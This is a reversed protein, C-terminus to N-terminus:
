RFPVTLGLLPIPYLDVGFSFSNDVVIMMAFDWSIKRGILRGSLSILSGQLPDAIWNETVLAFSRTLRYQGGIIYIPGPQFDGDEHAFALGASFYRDPSGYTLATYYCSFDITSPGYESLHTVVAGLGVQFKNEVVPITFKPYLAISPFESSGGVLSAFELGVGMSFNDTIGYFAQNVFLMFNQYYGEGKAPNFGTVPSFLNRGNSRAPFWDRRLAGPQFYEVMSIQSRQINLKGLSASEIIIHDKDESLVNGSIETGDRLRLLVPRGGDEQALLNECFLLTLILCLALYLQKM